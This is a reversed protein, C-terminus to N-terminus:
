DKVVTENYLSLSPFAFELDHKEIIAMINHMVDEKAILWEEWDVSKTFCYILINISSDKFEDLYVLLTSKVGKLDNKSVLKASHYERHRFKTDKTAISPHNQLMERIDEVAEKINESKSDYKIGLSMKIRRGLVRKNWNKIDQSAFTGNPIAILANDFTRLTTVRLGIEIVVGEHGNIEIWDGQSFVNSFLISLTGFFNSITDKAAFAVALGGIGLGSLIGTLDIDAFYLMILLGITIIIFNVIKIGVNILDNKMKAEINKLLGLRISAITNTFIYFLLTFYFGYIINFIKSVFVNSSFDNYVYIVMNVNIIIILFKITKRIKKLIKPAYKELSDIRVLYKELTVYVIKRFFLIVLSLFVMVTLKIINLGYFELIPNLNKVADLSNIYIALNIIHYQSYKNLRYMRNQISYLYTITATNIEKLIDFEELNKKAQMFITSNSETLLINSYDNKYLEQVQLQNENVYNNLDKEFMDITPENLSKLINKVMINQSRVLTYSKLALEDRLVAYSNNAKKNVIINKKLVFIKSEFLEINNIYQQKKALFENLEDEFLIEQQVRLNEIKKQTIDKSNIEKLIKIQADVFKSYKVEAASLSSITFFILLLLRINHM